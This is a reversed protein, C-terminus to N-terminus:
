GFKVMELTVILSIPVFNTFLLMWNGFRLMLNHLFFEKSLAYDQNYALYHLSKAHEEHWTSNFMACVLCLM